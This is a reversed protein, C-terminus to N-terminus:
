GSDVWVCNEADFSKSQSACDAQTIQCNLSTQSNGRENDDCANACLLLISITLFHPCAKRM